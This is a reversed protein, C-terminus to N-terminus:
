QMVITNKKSRLEDEKDSYRVVDNRKTIESESSGFYENNHESVVKDMDTKNSLSRISMSLVIMVIAPAIYRM